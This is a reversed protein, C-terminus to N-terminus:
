RKPSVTKSLIATVTSPALGLRLAERVTEVVAGEDMHPDAAVLARCYRYFTRESIGLDHAAAKRTM